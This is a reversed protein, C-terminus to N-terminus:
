SEQRGVARQIRHRIWWAALTAFRYGKAPDYQEVARMLGLNGEQILDLLPVGLAEYKRAIRVVLRLNAQILRRRFLAAEPESASRMANVLDIEEERTLQPYQTIDALYLALTQEDSREAPGLRSGLLRVIGDDRALAQLFIEGRWARVMEVLRDLGTEHLRDVVELERAADPDTRWLRDALRRLRRAVESREARERDLVGLVRWRVEAASPGQPLAAVYGSDLLGLLLHGTNISADGLSTAARMALELAKRTEPQFAPREAPVPPGQPFAVLKPEAGTAGLAQAGPGTVEALVGELLGDPSVLLPGAQRMAFAIARRADLSLLDRLAGDLPDRATVERDLWHALAARGAGATLLDRTAPADLTADLGNIALLHLAALLALRRNGAPLPGIDLVGAVLSAAAEHPPERSAEALIRAIAPTDLLEALKPMEVESVEAALAVLEPLDLHRM